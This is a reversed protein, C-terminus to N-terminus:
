AAKATWIGDREVYRTVQSEQKLDRDTFRFLMAPGTVSRTDHIDGPLFVRIQGPRLLYDERKILRVKGDPDQVRIYTAMEIEGRQVAYIGWGRGHDHPPRYLGLPEAHALLVFGHVPDRYLARTEPADRHLSALWEETASAKTLEELHRRCGAVMESTLPGWISMIGEIFREMANEAMIKRPEVVPHRFGLGRGSM